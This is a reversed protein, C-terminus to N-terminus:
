LSAGKRRFESELWEVNRIMQEVGVKTSRDRRARSDRPRSTEARPAEREMSALEDIMAREDAVEVDTVSAGHERMHELRTMLVLNCPRNDSAIRNEHHVEYLDSYGDLWAEAVLRHVPKTLSRGNVFLKVRLYGGRRAMGKMSGDLKETLYARGGRCKAPDIKAPYIHGDEGARYRGGTSPIPKTRM